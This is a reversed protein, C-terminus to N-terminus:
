QAPPTARERKETEEVSKNHVIRVAHGTILGCDAIRL